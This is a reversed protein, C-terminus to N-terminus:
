PSRKQKAVIGLKMLVTALSVVHTTWIQMFRSCRRNFLDVMDDFAQLTDDSLGHYSLLKLVHQLSGAEYNDLYGALLPGHTSSQSISPSLLQSM